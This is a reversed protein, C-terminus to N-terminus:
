VLKEVSYIHGNRSHKYCKFWGEEFSAKDFIITKNIHLNEGNITFNGFDDVSELIGEVEKVAGLNSGSNARVKLSDGINIVNDNIDLYFIKRGSNLIKTPKM